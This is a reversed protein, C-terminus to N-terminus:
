KLIDTLDVDSLDPDAAPTSVLYKAYKPNFWHARILGPHTKNAEVLDLYYMYVFDAKSSSPRRILPRSEYWEMFIPINVLIWAVYEQEKEDVYGHLYLHAFMKFFEGLALNTLRKPSRDQLYEVTFTGGYKKFWKFRNIKEQVTLLSQKTPLRVISDIHNSRDMEMTYRPGIKKAGFIGRYIDYTKQRMKVSLKMDANFDNQGTPM